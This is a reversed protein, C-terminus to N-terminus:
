EDSDALRPDSDFRYGRGYISEIPNACGCQALKRRLLRVQAAVVNSMNEANWDWVQSLIQDFVLGSLTEIVTMGVKSQALGFGVYVAGVASLVVASHQAIAQEPLFMLYAISCAGLILAAFLAPLHNSLPLLQSFERKM